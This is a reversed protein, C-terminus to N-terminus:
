SGPPDAGGDDRLALVAHRGPHDEAVGTAAVALRVEADDLAQLEVGEALLFELGRQLLQLLLPVRHLVQDPASPYVECFREPGLLRVFVGWFCPGAPTLGAELARLRSHLSM